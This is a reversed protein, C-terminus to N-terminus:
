AILGSIIGLSFYVALALIVPVLIFDVALISVLSKKNTFFLIFINIFLTTSAGIIFHWHPEIYAIEFTM